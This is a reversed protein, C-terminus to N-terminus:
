GMRLQAFFLEEFKLRRLSAEYQENDAPFHIQRYADYRSPFQLSSVIVDPLNEPIDKVHLQPLLASTLKGISRGNLGKAKLKETTPYIPDLM